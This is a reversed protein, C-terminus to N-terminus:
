EVNQIQERIKELEAKVDVVRHSTGAHCIKSGITNFERHLEQLLFNLKRGAPEESAMIRRFQEVHSRARVIEESIDSRDALYAAEQALRAPDLEVTDQILAAIRDKLRKQYQGILDDSDAKIEVLSTEILDLRAAMDDAIFAGEKLRMTELDDLARTICERVMPWTRGSEDITENPKIMGGVSLLQDLSIENKLDLEKKLRSLAAHMARARIWDIEFAVAGESPDKIQVKVELRGRVIQRAILGKIKEELRMYNSPVRLAIDLHRSNFARIDATVANEGDIIEAAAFGTMSKIM